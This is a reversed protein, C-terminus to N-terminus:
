KAALPEVKLIKVAWVITQKDASQRAITIRLLAQGTEVSWLRIVDVGGTVVIEGDCYWDLSLIRETSIM